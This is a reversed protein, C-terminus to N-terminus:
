STTGPRKERSANSQQKFEEFERMLEDSEALMSKSIALYPGLNSTTQAPAMGSTLKPDIPSIVDDRFNALHMYGAEVFGRLREDTTM